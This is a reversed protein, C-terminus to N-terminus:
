RSSWLIRFLTLKRLRLTREVLSPCLQVWAKQLRIKSWDDLEKKPGYKTALFAQVVDSIVEKKGPLYKNLRLSFELPTEHDFPGSNGINALYCLRDYADAATRVQSLRRVRRGISERAIFVAIALLIAISFSYIYSWPLTRRPYEIQRSGAVGYPGYGETMWPPLAGTNSFSLNYGESTIAGESTAEPSVPTAEFEIWRYRPFYVEVWAHSNRGRIIHKGTDKDLEGRFYGTCIRAPVGLCRSMVALASAFNTCVGGKTSFLFYDVGDSGEPPAKVTPDYKFKGLYNKLAMVKDYPIQANQTINESLRRVRGPLSDPLKLYQGTVWEPYNEGAMALEGPTTTTFNAVVRYLEYPGITRTSVIAATDPYEESTTTMTGPNGPSFTQLKVPISASVVEGAAVVVDTKLRNDIVYTLSRSNPTVEDDTIREGPRLEQESKVASRWGWPEYVDYRRTRWYDSHEADVLFYVKSNNEIPDKFLLEEQEQSEIIKWKSPVSAFINFWLKEISRSSFLPMDVKLSTNDLNPVPVFYAISVAVVAISFVALPFYAAGRRVPKEKWPVPSDLRKALSVAAIAIIASLFYLPFFYYMDRPLNSLNVLLMVTGLVVAPWANRKRLIYWTSVFGITWSTFTLFMAFYITSETLRSSSVTQWWLQWSSIDEAPTFLRVSQWVTVLLGILVLTLSTIKGPVRSNALIAGAVVALGLATILSPQPTVWHASEISGVAVTLTLFSFVVGSWALLNDLRAQRIAQQFRIVSKKATSQSM